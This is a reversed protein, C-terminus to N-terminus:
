KFFLFTLCKSCNCPSPPTDHAPARNNNGFIGFFNKMYGSDSSIEKPQAFYADYKGATASFGSIGVFITSFVTLVAALIFNM